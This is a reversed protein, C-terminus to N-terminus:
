CHVPGPSVKIVFRPVMMLVKYGGTILGVVTGVEAAVWTDITAIVDVMARSSKPVKVSRKAGV